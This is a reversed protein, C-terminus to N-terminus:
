LRTIESDTSSPNLFGEMLKVTEVVTEKRDYFDYPQVSLAHVQPKMRMDNVFVDLGSKHPDAESHIILTPVRVRAAASTSDFNLWHSWGMTAFRNQWQPINGRDTNLYYDIKGQSESTIVASPDSFSVVPVYTLVGDQQFQHNAMRAARLKEQVLSEEDEVIQANQLWPAIMIVRDVRPDNVAEAAVYGASAGLGALSIRSGSFEKRNAIFDMAGRFDDIKQGPDELNRVAGDSEGFNVFDFVLAAIGTRALEQAYAVPGQEKVNAINGNIIVVDHPNGKPHYLWGRMKKRNKSLFDVVEAKYESKDPTKSMAKEVLDKDGDVSDRTFQMRMIKLDNGDQVFEFEYKGSVTATDSTITRNKWYVGSVSASGLIRENKEDLKFGSVSHRTSSFYEIFPRMQKTIEEPKLLRPEDLVVETRYAFSKEFASWDRNDISSFVNAAVKEARQQKLAESMEKPTPDKKHNSSCASVLLLTVLVTSSLRM